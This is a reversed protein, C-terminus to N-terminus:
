IHAEHAFVSYVILPFTITEKLDPSHHIKHIKTQGHSTRAGFTNWSDLQKTVLQKTKHLDTHTILHKDNKRIENRLELM